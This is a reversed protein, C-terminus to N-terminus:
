MNKPPHVSVKVSYIMEKILNTYSFYIDKNNVMYHVPHTIHLLTIHMCTYRTVLWTMDSVISITVSMFSSWSEFLHM